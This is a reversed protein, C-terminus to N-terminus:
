NYWSVKGYGCYLLLRGAASVERNRRVSVKQQVLSLDLRQVGSLIPPALASDALNPWFIPPAVKFTPTVFYIARASMCPLPTTLLSLKSAAKKGTISSRGVNTSSIDITLLSRIRRRKERWHREERVAGERRGERVKEM